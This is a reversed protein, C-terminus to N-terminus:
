RAAILDDGATQRAITALASFTNQGGTACTGACGDAYGVEIRGTSDITSDIFDLLNRCQNSGGGLWICGRQVPDSPTADVTSWTTGGDYTTAVYLHWVGPFSSAQDNGATTTGLFSFAARDDDGGVVTPFQINKIGLAAGIDVSSTWSGNRRVAVMPHSETGAGRNDAYGFYVTNGAGIGISPDSEDQTSSDAVKSVTWTTGNDTSYVAAQKGGCDANPVYATGNPGVKIHGHLGGCQTANYIPVAPNFSVGGNQSLACQATAVAQACYYVADPYATTPGVLGPAFPGGGITQHDAGSAIGCGVPNQFWSAGDDDSFAMLSCGASLQSVFTRGTTHDTFLIPDLGTTSTVTSGVSTWTPQSPTFDVRLTQLGAQYLTRDTKWNVGISPEGADTGLGNPAAYNTFSPPTAASAGAALVAALVLAPALACAARRVARHLEIM